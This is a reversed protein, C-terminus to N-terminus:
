HDISWLLASPLSESLVIALNENQFSSEYAVTSIVVDDEAGLVMPGHDADVAETEPLYFHAILGDFYFRFIRELRHKTGAVLSRVDKYQAIPAMNQIVGRTALQTLQIRYFSAPSAQREILMLRLRELDDAPIEVEAFEPRSTAAARWLLSLFFLRLRLTDLGSTKRIGWTTETIPTYHGELTESSGVGVGYSDTLACNSSQGPILSPQVNEGNLTVLRDDYWSDWRRLAKKGSSLQVLPRGPLSPRTLAKPILHAAIFDGQELTLACVGKMEYERLVGDHGFCAVYGAAGSITLITM